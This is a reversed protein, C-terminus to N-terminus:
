ILGARRLLADTNPEAGRFKKYLEMPHESGGRSLVNDRFKKGIEKNFIGNEKFYEFADADLVEAWKYSYYGASYGGAFIHSFACSSSTGPIKPLLKVSETAKAEFAMVDSIDSPNGSHWAMDLLGFTLQRITMYGEGFNASDKLKQVLEEPILEGTQYHKAFLDLCEKEYAWNELVQSPLEVFDWFVNTGALSKYKCNSLMGHLGHGFEHFLTTVEGFTLLSPKTETPKTFNCVNSILPRVDKGHHQHQERFMTMWAGGRKGARPFFDAYFLSIHKGDEDKVEYTMVDKHYKPIDHREEFTLGYLKNAVKFVGDIVNELKFYPKLMEDDISYREKKLKEFYYGYDWPMLEEIGDLQKAYDAVEVVHAKAAPLGKDKLKNLLTFVNDANQAMREELVFDAHTKYGLLNAREFRLNAIRKVIEQNDREDGKCCKSAFARSMKERLARNSAYTVFPVYSPYQLTFVWKGEHGKETATMAAAEIVGEPLGALDDKNDLVMEFSNTEKLVNDSFQIGLTSLETDIARLKDKKEDSLLAGNRTFSKYNKELLTMQEGTLNLSDKKDWVKKIKAFLGADLTVDNGFETLKPSFVKDIETMEDNTEASTLNSFTYAVTDLLLGVKDFAEIVNEFTEEETNNKIAEIEAKADVIAKELAPLYHENKIKDFPIAEFPTDFKEFFPNM